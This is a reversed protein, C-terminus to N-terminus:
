LTWHIDSLGGNDGLGGEAEFCNMLAVMTTEDNEFDLTAGDSLLNDPIPFSPLVDIQSSAGLKEIESPSLRVLEDKQVEGSSVVLGLPSKKLLDSPSINGNFPPSHLRQLELIQKAIEKGINAAGLLTGSSMGPLNLYPRKSTDESSHSSGPLSATELSSGQGSVVTNVSVIYELERTWPNIFSFWQSRLIIFSGDKVRFKYPNTMIKEKCQLVSKHHETLHSHDDPHFYEYCSTGLLEQPLYGLIATARQDVYVFKGDMAYRTVFETPKVKIDSTSQPIIYPHFRGIAVLCSFSYSEKESDSDEKIGVESSMCNRLYGTCHITCYRRHEKKKAGSLYEETEKNSVRGIRMRCFFSRRSGCHLRSSGAQFHTHVQLGASKHHETLHSHDDPHFYEYCSTGLLEQPLYGLIATA